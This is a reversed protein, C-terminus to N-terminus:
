LLPGADRHRLQGVIGAIGVRLGMGRALRQPVQEVAIAVVEVDRVFADGPMGVARAAGRHPDRMGIPMVLDQAEVRNGSTGGPERVPEVCLADPGALADREHQLRAQREVDAQEPRHLGAGDRHRQESQEAGIRQAQPDVIAPWPQQHGVGVLGLKGTRDAPDLHHDGVLREEVAEGIKRRGIRRLCLRVVQGDELVGAAGRAFQRLRHLVAM